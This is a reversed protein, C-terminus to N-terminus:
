GWSVPMENEESMQVGTRHAKTQSGPTEFVTQGDAGNRLPRPGLNAFDGRLEHFALM